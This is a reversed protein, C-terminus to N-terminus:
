APNRTLRAEAAEARRRQRDAEALAVKLRNDKVVRWASPAASIAACVLALWYPQDAVVCFLTTGVYAISAHLCMSIVADPNADFTM